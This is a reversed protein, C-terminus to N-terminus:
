DGPRARRTRGLPIKSSSQELKKGDDGSSFDDSAATSLQTIARGPAIAADGFKARIADIASEQRAWNTEDKEFLETQPAAVADSLASYGVGILRYRRRSDVAEELLPTIAAFLSRALNSPPSMPCQRTITKFRSDKLKLHAAAGVLDKEKMRRAVDECLLWAKARLAELDAIDANFTTESSVSKRVRETSVERVDQGWALAALRAGTKGFKRSLEGADMKQLAGITTVGQRALKQATVAGVGWIKTVPLPALIEATGIRPIISFGEPKELDSALKALFKNHSLGVSVTIGIDNKIKDQLRALTMAPPRGHLRETGTLDLFAEDISLPEVLPTAQEMLARVQKGAAVYKEFNPKIVVANPCADLAKFMPMASRVGYTRAIYCATTVVGRTGGGVIVPRDELEPADRKEISAYFADCDMHAITLEVIDRSDAIRRDGCTACLGKAAGRPAGCNLCISIEEKIETM